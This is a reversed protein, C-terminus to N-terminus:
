GAMGMLEPGPFATELGFCGKKTKTFRKSWMIALAKRNSSDYRYHIFKGTREDLRDLGKDTGVWINGTHDRLIAFVAGNTISSNDKDDHKFHKFVGTGPNYQDLGDAGIWILGQDDAYITEPFDLGFSNPNKADRRFSTLMNGDYRYFCHQDAGSFWMTGGPDQTIGTIRGLQTGNLSDLKYFPINSQADVSYGAIQFFIFFAIRIKSTM